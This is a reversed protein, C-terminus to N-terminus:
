EGTPRAFEDAIAELLVRQNPSGTFWREILRVLKKRDLPSSSAYCRLFLAAGPDALGDPRTPPEDRPFAPPEPALSYEAPRPPIPPSSPFPAPGFM